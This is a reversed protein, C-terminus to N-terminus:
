SNNVRQIIIIKAYIYIDGYLPKVINHTKTSAPTFSNVMDSLKKVIDETSKIISQEDFYDVPHRLVMGYLLEAHSM